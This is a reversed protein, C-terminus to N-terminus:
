VSASAVRAVSCVGPTINNPAVTNPLSRAELSAAVAMQSFRDNRRAARRGLLTEADFDKVEGAIQVDLNSPDIRAIRAIGSQGALLREWTTPVDNGLPTVAGMGTVVVRRKM